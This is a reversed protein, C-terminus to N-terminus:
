NNAKLSTMNNMAPALNNLELLDGFHQTNEQNLTHADEIETKFHEPRKSRLNYGVQVDVEEVRPTEKYDSCFFTSEHDEEDMKSLWM